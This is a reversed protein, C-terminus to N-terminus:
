DEKNENYWKIFEVVLSYVEKRLNSGAEEKSYITLDESVEQYFLNRHGTIKWMKEVVPMLYDWSTHYETIRTFVEPPVVNKIGKNLVCVIAVVLDQGTELDKVLTHNEGMFEAILRDNEITHM